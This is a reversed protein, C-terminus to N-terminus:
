GRPKRCLLPFVFRRWLDRVEGVDGFVSIQGADPVIIGMIMRITSTKGAGNPGLLGYIGGPRVRLSLDNVAVFEDYCKRIKTLEVTPATASTLAPSSSQAVPVEMLNMFVATQASSLDYRYPPFEAMQPEFQRARAQGEDRLDM